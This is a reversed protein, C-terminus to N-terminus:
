VRYGCRVCTGRRKPDATFPQHCHPCHFPRLGIRSAQKPVTKVADGKERRIQSAGRLVCAGLKLLLGPCVLGAVMGSFSPPERNERRAAMYALAYVLVSLSIKLVTEVNNEMNEVRSTERLM